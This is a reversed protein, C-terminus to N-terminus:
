VRLDTFAVGVEGDLVAVQAVTDLADQQRVMSDDIPIRIQDPFFLM